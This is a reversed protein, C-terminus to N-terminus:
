TNSITFDFLLTDFTPRTLGHLMTQSCLASGSEVISGTSDLSPLPWVFGDAIFDCNSMHSYFGQEPSVDEWGPGM